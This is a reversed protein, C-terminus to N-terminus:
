SQLRPAYPKATREHVKAKVGAVGGASLERYTAMLQRVAARPGRGVKTVLRARAAAMRSTVAELPQKDHTAALRGVASLGDDGMLTELLDRPTVDRLINDLEGQRFALYTSNAAHILEGIFELAELEIKIVAEVMGLVVNVSFWLQDFLGRRAAVLWPDFVGKEALDVLPSLAAVIVLRPLAELYNDVSEMLDEGNVDPFAEPVSFFEDRVSVSECRGDHNSDDGDDDNHTSNHSAMDTVQNLLGAVLEMPKTDMLPSVKLVSSTADVMSSLPSMPTDVRGSAMQAAVPSLVEAAVVVGFAVAALRMVAMTAFTFLHFPALPPPFSLRDVPVAAEGTM